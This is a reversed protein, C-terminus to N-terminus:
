GGGLREQREAERARRRGSEDIKRGLVFLGVGGVALAGWFIFLGQSTTGERLLILMVLTLAMGGVQVMRPGNM